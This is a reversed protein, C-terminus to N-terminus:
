NEMASCVIGSNLCQFCKLSRSLLHSVVSGVQERHHKDVLMGAARHPEASAETQLTCVTEEIARHKPLVIWAQM